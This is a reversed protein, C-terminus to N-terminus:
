DALPNPASGPAGTAITEREEPPAQQRPPLQPAIRAGLWPGLRGFRGSHLLVLYAPVLIPRVIFTDLLVGFALAFGLEVMGLLTGAMLTSFTGAMIIGCSSIISGTKTLAALVGEVPPRTRQEEEVRAMLLINYDEGMAILITFLFIPVKWDLGAFSAPDRMWFVAVTVGLTVLFSFVVSVILYACIAPKRLLAILVLYVSIVVLTYIRAQDSDTVNKLDRIGSTPGVSWIETKSAMTEAQARIEEVPPDSELSEDTLDADDDAEEDLQRGLQEDEWRDKLLVAYADPLADRIAQEAHTLQAVSDRSFPDIDFVLDLRVVDRALEGKGSLYTKLAQNRLVQRGGLVPLDPLPVMSGLPHKQSRIDAIDLEAMRARLSETLAEAFNEGPTTAAVGPPFELDPNHLLVTTPGAIGAAFHRQIAKAGVVSADNQPLDSLLGYSLQNHYMVGVVAFPVLAATCSLLIMAPRELLADAIKKWLRELWQQQHLHSLPSFRPWWAAGPTITESRIDPWFAWRGCLLLLTPTFTVSACLVVLLGFSIAFGAQQFKGFDAFMMMGIGCISTGASTALATGVRHVATAMAEPISLGRELEEKYRAILFLCYDVGAGYVVVTVYIEIGHFLGIWGEGAMLRLLRITVEVAMGVTILPILALLPARYLVLLLIIVLTKTFWETKAASEHEAMLMDRGVTASGSIALDLGAIKYDGWNEHKTVKEVLQEVRHILLSNSRDLFETKLEMLILTARDDESTLLLGIEHDEWTWVGRTIPETDGEEPVDVQGDYSYYGSGTTRGIEELEPRLKSEIFERDHETLGGPLDTRRVIIVITSGLPNLQVPSDDTISGTLSDPFARRYVEEGVRSPSDEPLFVFEGDVTVASWDPAVMLVTGILVLWGVLMVPWARSVLQGLPQFM